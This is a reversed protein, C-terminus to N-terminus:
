MQPVQEKSFYKHVDPDMKIKRMDREEETIRDVTDRPVGNEHLYTSIEEREPYPFKVRYARSDIPPTIKTLDNTTLIFVAQTSDLINRLSGQANESMYEVEDLIIVKQKGTLSQSKSAPEITNRIDSVRSKKSANFLIVAGCVEKSIQRATTTKGTGPPGYFLMHPLDDYVDVVEWADEAGQGIIGTDHTM